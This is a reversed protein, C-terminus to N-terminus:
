IWGDTRGKIGFFYLDVHIFGHLSAFRLSVFHFAKGTLDGPYVCDEEYNGEREFRGDVLHVLFLLSLLRVFFFRRM